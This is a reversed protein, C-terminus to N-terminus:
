RGIQNLRDRVRHPYTMEIIELQEEAIAIQKKTTSKSGLVSFVAIIVFAAAAVYGRGAGAVGLVIGCIAYILAFATSDAFSTWILGNSFALKSKQTLSVDEDILSFFLPRIKKWTYKDPNDPYGSILVMRRLIFDTIKAHHPGNIWSRLPTIYYIVSPIIFIPLYLSEKLGPVELKWLGTILGLLALYSVALVGPVVLRRNKLSELTM